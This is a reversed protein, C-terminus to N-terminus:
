IEMAAGKGPFTTEIWEGLFETLVPPVHKLFWDRSIHDIIGLENTLAAFIHPAIGSILSVLHVSVTSATKHKVTPVQANIPGPKEFPTPSSFFEGAFDM